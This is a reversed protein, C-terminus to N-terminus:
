RAGGRKALCGRTAARCAPRTLTLTLTLSLALTLALALALALTPKPNPSISAKTPVTARLWGDLAADSSADAADVQVLKMEHQSFGDHTKLVWLQPYDAQTTSGYTTLLLCDLLVCYATLLSCFATLLQPYSAQALSLARLAAHPGHLGAADETWKFEFSPPLFVCGECEARLRALATKTGLAERLGPIYGSICGRKRRVFRKPTDEEDPPDRLEFDFWNGQRSGYECMGLRVAAKRVSENLDRRKGSVVFTRCRASSAAAGKPQPVAREPDNARRGRPLSAERAVVLSDARKLWALVRSERLDPADLSGPLSIRCRCADGV